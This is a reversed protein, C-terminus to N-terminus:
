YQQAKHYELIFLTVPLDLRQKAGHRILSIGQKHVQSLLDSVVRHLFVVEIITICANVQMYSLAEYVCCQIGLVLQLKYQWSANKDEKHVKM